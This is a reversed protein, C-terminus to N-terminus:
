GRDGGVGAPAGKEEMGAPAAVEAAGVPAAAEETGAPSAFESVDCGAGGCLVALMVTINDSSGSASALRTLGECIAKPPHGERLNNFVFQCAQKYSVTDWLGDCGLLLFQDTVGESCVEASTLFPEATLGSAQGNTYLDDKFFLDGIARSVSLSLVQPSITPHGLRGHWLRGGAASVRSSEQANRKLHHVETLIVFHEEHNDLRTGLLVESDGVNGVICRGERRDVLAVAATTGDMWENERAVELWEAETTAFALSLAKCPDRILMDRDRCLSAFMHEGAFEAARAGGHGDFVGFFSLSGLNAEGSEAADPPPSASSASASRGQQEVGLVAMHADEMERRLNQISHVGHSIPRPCHLRTLTHRGSRLASAYGPLSALNPQSDGSLSGREEAITPPAASATSAVRLMDPSWDDSWDSRVSVDGMSLAVSVPPASVDGMSLAASAPPVSSSVARSVGSLGADTLASGPREEPRPATLM